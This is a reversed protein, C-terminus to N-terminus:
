PTMWASFRFSIEPQRKLYKPRHVDGETSASRLMQGTATDWLAVTQGSASALVRGDPSYTIDSVPSGSDLTFDPTSFIQYTNEQATASSVFAFFLLMLFCRKTM